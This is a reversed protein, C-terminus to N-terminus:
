LSEDVSKARMSKRYNDIAALNQRTFRIASIHNFITDHEDSREVEKTKWYDYYTSGSIPQQIIDIRSGCLIDRIVGLNFGKIDTVNGIVDDAISVADDSDRLLAKLSAATTFIVSAEDKVFEGKDNAVYAPVDDDLSLAVQIRDAKPTAFLATIRLDTLLNAGEAKQLSAIVRSHKSM